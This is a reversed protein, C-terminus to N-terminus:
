PKFIGDIQERDYDLIWDNFKTYIPVLSEKHEAVLDMGRDDYMYFIIHRQPNIFFVADSIFPDVAFDQHAKARLIGRYDIDNRKCFLTQQRSFGSLEGNDEFHKEAEGCSVQGILKRNKIYKPFVEEGQNICIYPEIGRYAKVVVMMDEDQEFVQQFIMGARLWVNTFYERNNIGRCPVGLEFRIGVAANYFLPAELPVGPFHKKLYGSLKLTDSM